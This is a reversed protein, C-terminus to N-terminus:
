DGEGGNKPAEDDVDRSIEDSLGRGRALRRGLAEVFGKNPIQHAEGGDTGGCELAAKPATLIVRELMWDRGGAIPAIARFQIFKDPRGPNVARPALANQNHNEAAQITEAFGFGSHQIHAAHYSSMPAALLRHFASRKEARRPPM